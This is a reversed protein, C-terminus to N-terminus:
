NRELDRIPLRKRRKQRAVAKRSVGSNINVEGRVLGALIHLGVNFHRTKDHGRALFIKNGQPSKAGPKAQCINKGFRGNIGFDIKFIRFGGSHMKACLDRGAAGYGARQNRFNFARAAYGRFHGRFPLRALGFDPGKIHAHGHRWNVAALAPRDIKAHM